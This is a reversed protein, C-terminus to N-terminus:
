DKIKKWHQTGRLYVPELDLANIIHKKEIKQRIYPAIDRLDILNKDQNLALSLEPLLNVGDGIYLHDKLIEIEDIKCVSDPKNTTINQGNFTYSATYVDGMRANLVPQISQYHSTKAATASISLLSSFTVIPPNFIAALAKVAAVGLRVGVFSGPGIGIAIYNIDTHSINAKSLATNMLDIIVENHRKPQSEILSILQTQTDVMVCCQDTSTDIALINTNNSAQKM